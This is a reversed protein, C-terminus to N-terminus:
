DRCLDRSSLCERCSRDRSPANVAGHEQLHRALLLDVHSRMPSRRTSGVFSHPRVISDNSRPRWSPFYAFRAITELIM